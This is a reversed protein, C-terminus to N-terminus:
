AVTLPVVTPNANAEGKNPQGVGTTIVSHLSALYFNWSENCVEYCRESPVLGRHTFRLESGSETPRNRVGRRHRDM